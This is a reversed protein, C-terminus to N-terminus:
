QATKKWVATVEERKSEFTGSPVERRLRHKERVGKFVM